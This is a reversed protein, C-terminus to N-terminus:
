PFFMIFKEALKRVLMSWSFIYKVIVSSFTWWTRIKCLCCSSFEDTIRLKLKTEKRRGCLFVVGFLTNLIMIVKKLPELIVDRNKEININWHVYRCNFNSDGTVLLYRSPALPPPHPSHLSFYVYQLFTSLKGLLCNINIFIKPNSNNPIDIFLFSDCYLDKLAVLLCFMVSLQM